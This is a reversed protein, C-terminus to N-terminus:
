VILEIYWAIARAGFLLATIVGASLFPGFPYLTSSSDPAGKRRKVARLSLLIVSGALSGVLVAFLIGRWGLLLGSAFMLKVDGAGLGERHLLLRCGYYIAAFFGGGIVAGLLADTWARKGLLILLLAIGILIVHFRDPIWLQELDILAVCLLASCACATLAVVAIGDTLFICACLLWIVANLLEVVTYRPSIRCGCNRCKGRLLLYSIVPINDYPAIRSGCGPCHSPPSVVSMGRPVRYIVVNLFSGVCLGLVFVLVRFLVLENM